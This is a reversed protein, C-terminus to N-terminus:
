VIAKMAKELSLSKVAEDLQARLSAVEEQAKAAEKQWRKLEKRCAEDIKAVEALRQRRIPELAEFALARIRGPLEPVEAEVQESHWTRMEGRGNKPVFLCFAWGDVRSALVDGKQAMAQFLRPARKAREIQTPYPTRKSGNRELEMPADGAPTSKWGNPLEADGRGAPCNVATSADPALVAGNASDEGGDVNMASKAPSPPTAPKDADVTMGDAVGAGDETVLSSLPTKDADVTMGDAAEADGSEAVLAPLADLLEEMSLAGGAEQVIQPALKMVADKFSVSKDFFEALKAVQEDARERIMNAEAAAVGDALANAKDLMHELEKAKSYGDICKRGHGARPKGCHKCAPAKRGSTASTPAAVPAPKSARARTTPGSAPTPTKTATITKGSRTKMALSKSLAPNRTRPM